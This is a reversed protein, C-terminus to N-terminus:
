LTIQFALKPVQIATDSNALALVFDEVTVVRRPLVVRIKITLKLGVAVAHPLQPPPLPPPEPLGVSPQFIFISAVPVPVWIDEPRLGAITRVPSSTLNIAPLLISSFWAPLCILIAVLGSKIESLMVVPSLLSSLLPKVMVPPGLTVLPPILAPLLTM